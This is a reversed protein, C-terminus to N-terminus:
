SVTTFLDPFANKARKSKHRLDVEKGETTTLKEGDNSVLAM